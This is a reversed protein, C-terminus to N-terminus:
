SNLAREAEAALAFVWAARDTYVLRFRRPFAPGEPLRLGGRERPVLLYDAKLSRLKEWLLDPDGLAPLIETFRGPGHWDGLLTGAAFYTMDEAFFAYVTYASGRERNLWTLAPYLPLHATLYRERAEVTTPLVGQRSLRYGAYLWGPLLLLVLLPVTWRPPCFRVLAAALALCLLPLAPLLYRSDAPLLPFFAAYALAVLLWPRVRRELVFAAALLPLALLLLPSFPPQGGTLSRAFVVDWPLTALTHLAQGLAAPLSRPLPKLTVPDWPTHGFIGPLYPFLPNGTYYFIRGYVPLVVALAVAGFLALRALWSPLSPRSLRSPGSIGPLSRSLPLAAGLAAVALFFLGLYKVDAASAAFVACLALWGREGSRRWRHLAYLSATAFLTLGAEIYASTGLHVVIPTGLYAAGALGSARPPLTERGWAVLLAATALIALLEILHVAVDGALLLVAAFLAESLQPFVPFRLDALFPLAGTRAFARADPLHYLTADFATPPYLALLFLPLLLCLLGLTAMGSRHWGSFATRAERWAPLGALHIGVLAAALVPLQLLHALGLLFALHALGALGLALPLALREWGETLPLSGSLRRGLVWATAALLALALLHGLLFAPAALLTSTM